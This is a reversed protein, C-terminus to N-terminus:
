KLVELWDVIEGTDVSRWKLVDSTPRWGRREMDELLLDHRLITMERPAHVAVGQRSRVILTDGVRLMDGENMRISLAM